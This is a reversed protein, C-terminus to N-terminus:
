ADAAPERHVILVSRRAHGAVAGAVSGALVDSLGGRGHSGLVILSADHEEALKVLGKWTPAADIAVARARFGAADALAAGAAATELAARKVETAQAANFEVGDAPTFGVDFTSWVCGILADTHGTDLLKGAQAIAHKALESGDYAFLIPGDPEASM